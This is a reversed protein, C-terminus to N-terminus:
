NSSTVKHWSLIMSCMPFWKLPIALSEWLNNSRGLSAALSTWLAMFEGLSFSPILFVYIYICIYKYIYLCECCETKVHTASWKQWILLIRNSLFLFISQWSPWGWRRTPCLHKGGRWVPPFFVKGHRRVGKGCWPFDSGPVSLWSISFCKFFLSRGGGKEDWNKRPASRPLPPPGQLWLQM